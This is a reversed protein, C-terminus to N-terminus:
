CCAFFHASYVCHSGKFFSTFQSATFLNINGLYTMCSSIVDCNPLSKWATACIQRKVLNNFEDNLDTPRIQPGIIPLDFVKEELPTLANELCLVSKNTWQDKHQPATEFENVELYMILLLVDIVNKKHLQRPQHLFPPSTRHRSFRRRTSLAQRKSTKKGSM